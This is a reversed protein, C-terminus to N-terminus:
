PQMHKNVFSVASRYVRDLEQPDVDHLGHEANEISSFLYPVGHKEFQEAMMESQVHPVDTDRTGHILVTPPYDKTVNRVAMYPVFKDAQTDPDFGSIMRPWTSPPM